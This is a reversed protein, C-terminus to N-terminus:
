PDSEDDTRRPSYEASQVSSVGEVLRSWVCALVVYLHVIQWKIEVLTWDLRNSKSYKFITSMVMSMLLGM